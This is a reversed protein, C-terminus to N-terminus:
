SADVPKLGAPLAQGECWAAVTRAFLDPAEGSWGHGVGPVLYGEAHPLAKVVAPISQRILRQEGEGALVLTPSAADELDPDLGFTMLENGIRLFARPSMAQASRRYGEWREAPIRLAKAQARLFFERKMLPLMLPGALRMLRPYPFPLVNLGSLVVRDVRKPHRALLRLAAYAGLSLGVVHVRGDTTHGAILDALRDVTDDLSHWPMAASGGHGLLDPVLCRSSPLREVIPEWMWGSTGVAHLFLITPAESPGTVNLHM